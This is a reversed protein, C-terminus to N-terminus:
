RPCFCYLFPSPCLAQYYCTVKLTLPLSFGFTACLVERLQESDLGGCPQVGVARKILDWLLM